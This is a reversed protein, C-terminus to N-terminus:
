KKKEILQAVMVSIEYLVLLPGAMLLQSFVDPGPTLAAAAIFIIVIAFRRQKRLTQAQLIGVKVLFGIILPLQFVIGFSFLLGFVFSLYRTINIMPVLTDSGYALLFKVGVPLVLFYCFGAGLIFLLFSIITISLIFRKEKPFLGKQIFNWLQYLVVPMSLFIGLFFALKIRAWFAEFPSLFYLKGVPKTIDRLVWDVRSYVAISFLVIAIISYILSKRLDDLHTLLPAPEDLQKTKIKKATEM